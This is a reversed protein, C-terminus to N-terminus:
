SRGRTRPPSSPACVGYRKGRLAEQALREHWEAPLLSPLQGQYLLLAPQQGAGERPRLQARLSPLTCRHSPLTHASHCLFVDSCWSLASSGLVGNHRLEAYGRGLHGLVAPSPVSMDDPIVPTTDAYVLRGPSPKPCRAPASRLAPAGYRSLESGYYFGTRRVCHLQQQAQHLPTGAGGPITM